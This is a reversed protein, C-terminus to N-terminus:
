DCIMIMRVWRVPDEIVIYKLRSDKDDKLRDVPICLECVDGRRRIFPKIALIKDRRSM